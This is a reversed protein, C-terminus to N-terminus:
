GEQCISQLDDIIAKRIVQQDELSLQTIEADEEVDFVRYNFILEDPMLEGEDNLDGDQIYHDHLQVLVPRGNLELTLDISLWFGM